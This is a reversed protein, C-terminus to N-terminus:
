YLRCISKIFSFGWLILLSGFYLPHRVFQNLGSTQLSAAQAKDVARYQRWGSFEGLDYQRLALVTIIAGLLLLSWAFYTITARKEWLEAKPLEVYGFYLPVLLGVALFNFFFRYYRQGLKIKQAYLKVKENALLSHIVFYIILALSFYVFSLSM